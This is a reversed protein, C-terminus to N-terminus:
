GGITHMPRVHDVLRSRKILSEVGEFKRLYSARIFEALEEDSAGGRLLPKLDYEDRSFLCPVIKGDATLRVRDCDGCFPETMSTIVGVEGRAGDRFRYNRATSGRERELAVLPYREEIMSLIERGSVLLSSSWPKQGDFPMYEIFRVAVGTRRALEVFDLVEDDNCGRTIVTNIKVPALGVRMAEAVGRMVREFVGSSGVIEEFREPKLSHLSITVGRLGAARLREAMEALFYGNTTMSVSEIGPTEAIMAVIRHVDRRVLPEGGSLRVRSVGMGALVRAVRAMEEYTLLSERPMWVPHRPM